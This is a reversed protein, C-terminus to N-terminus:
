LPLDIKGKPRALMHQSGDLGIMDHGHEPLAILIRGTGCFPEFIKLKRQHGILRRVLAVDGVTTEHRDYIEAIHSDADYKQKDNQPM